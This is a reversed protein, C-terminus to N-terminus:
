DDAYHVSLETSIVEVEAWRDVLKDVEHLVKRLHYEQAGVAAVGLAARQWLDQHEVEAVSVNFSSRIANTLTKVVHRKEKLSHCAPIRLDFRELAVLV